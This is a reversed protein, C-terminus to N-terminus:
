WAGRPKKPMRRSFSEQPERRTSSLYDFALLLCLFRPANRVIIGAHQRQKADRAERQDVLELQREPRSEGGHRPLGAGALADQDVRQPQQPAAAGAGVHDAGAAVLRPHLRDELEGGARRRARTQHRVPALDLLPQDHPPHDRASPAPARVEAPPQRRGGVQRRRHRSEDVDGRLVVLLRQGIRLALQRDQVGEGLVLRQAVLHRLRVSRPGLCCRRQRRKRGVGPRAALALIQETKLQRLQLCRPRRGALVAREGGFPLAELPGLFEQRRGPASLLRQIRAVASDGLAQGAHRALQRRQRREIRPQRRQDLPEGVRLRRDFIDGPIKAAVRPPDPRVRGPQLLDLLPEEQELPETALVTPGDRIQRGLLRRQAGLQVLESRELLPHGRALAAAFAASARAVAAAVVSLADRRCAPTLRSFFTM